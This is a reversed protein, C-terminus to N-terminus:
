PTQIQAQKIVIPEDGIVHSKFFSATRHSLGRGLEIPM